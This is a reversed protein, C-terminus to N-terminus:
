VIKSCRAVNIDDTEEGIFFGESYHPNPTVCKIQIGSFEAQRDNAEPSYGLLLRVIEKQSM